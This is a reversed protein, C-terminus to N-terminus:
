ATKRRRPHLLAGCLLGCAFGCLHSQWSVNSSFSPILGSLLGGFFAVIAIASLIWKIRRSFYARSILYGLWGFTLESAGIILGSPAVLWTLLGGLVIVVATVILWHRLGGLLVAGGIIVFSITNSLLHGWSDNLVPQTLVGWLGGVRRPWLGFRNLRYHDVVNVIQVIWLASVAVLMMILAGSWTTVDVPFRRPTRTPEPEATRAKAEEYHRSWDIRRAASLRDGLRPGSPQASAPPAPSGPPQTGPPASETV